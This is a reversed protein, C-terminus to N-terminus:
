LQSAYDEPNFIRHDEDTTQKHFDLLKDKLITYYVRFKEYHIEKNVLAYDYLKKLIHLRDSRSARHFTEQLRYISKNFLYESETREIIFTEISSKKLNKIKKNEEIKKLYENPNFKEDCIGNDRLEKLKEEYTELEVNRFIVDFLILQIKKDSVKEAIRLVEDM